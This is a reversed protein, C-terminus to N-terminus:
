IPRRIKKRRSKNNPSFINNEKWNTAYLKAAAECNSFVNKQELVFEIHTINVTLHKSNNLGFFHKSNYSLNVM